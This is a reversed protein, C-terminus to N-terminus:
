NKMRLDFLMKLSWVKPRDLCRFNQCPWSFLHAWQGFCEFVTGEDASMVRSNATLEQNAAGPPQLSFMNVLVSLVTSFGTSVAASISQWCWNSVDSVCSLNSFQSVLSWQCVKWIGKIIIVANQQSPWQIHTHGGKQRTLWHYDKPLWITWSWNVLTCVTINTHISPSMSGLPTLTDFCMNSWEIIRLSLPDTQVSFFNTSFKEM